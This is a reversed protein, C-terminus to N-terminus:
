WSATYYLIFYEPKNSLETAVYETGDFKKVVPALDGSVLSAPTDDAPASAPAENEAPSDATSTTKNDNCAVLLASFACTAILKYKM